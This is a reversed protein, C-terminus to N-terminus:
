ARADLRQPPHSGTSQGLLCARRPSLEESLILVRGRQPDRPGLSPPSPPTWCSGSGKSGQTWFGVPSPPGSGQVRGCSRSLLEGRGQSAPRLPWWPPGRSGACGPVRMVQSGQGRHSPCGRPQPGGRRTLAAWASCRPERLSPCPSLHLLPRLVAVLGGALGPCRPPRPLPAPSM